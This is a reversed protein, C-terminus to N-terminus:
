SCHLWYLFQEGVGLRDRGIRGGGSVRGVSHWYHNKQCGEVQADDTLLM